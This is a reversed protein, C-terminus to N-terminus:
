GIVQADLDDWSTDISWGVRRPGGSSDDLLNETALRRLTDFGDHDFLVTFVQAPSYAIDSGEAIAGNDDDVRRAEVAAAKWFGEGDPLNFTVPLRIDM